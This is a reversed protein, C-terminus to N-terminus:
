EAPSEPNDSNSEDAPATSDGPAPEASEEGPEAIESDDTAEAEGEKFPVVAIDMVRDNNELNMLKM